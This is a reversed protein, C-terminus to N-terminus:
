SKIFQKIERERHAKKFQTKLDNYIPQYKEKLEEWDDNYSMIEDFYINARKFDYIFGFKMIQRGFELIRLSHFLSKKAIYPNYDEEITLKKKCKVWSNSAVRSIEIRILRYDLAMDDREGKLYHKNDTFYAEICRIDHIACMQEWCSIPYFHLDIKDTEIDMQEVDDTTIIIYDKDSKSTTNGYVTSGFEIVNLVKEYNLISKLVKKIDIM